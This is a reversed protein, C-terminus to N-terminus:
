ASSAVAKPSRTVNYTRVEPTGAMFPILAKNVDAFGERSYAEADEQRQWFSIGIAEKGDTSIMAIEDSFGAFKRLIPVVDQEIARTYGDGQGPKLDVRFIRAFM